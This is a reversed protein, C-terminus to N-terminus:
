LTGAARDPHRPGASRNVARFWTLRGNRWTREVDFWRELYALLEEDGPKRHLEGVIVGTGRLVGPPFSTLIEHEAGETDIKILDIAPLKLRTLVEPVAVVPLTPTDPPPTRGPRLFGGGGFNRPDDSRVYPRDETRPGLGFPLATIQPFAAVNSRLLEFNDPLPEFAVIEARPYRRSLGISVAGINAGIDLIVRPEFGAPPEYERPLGGGALIRVLKADSTGTRFRLRGPLGPLRIEALGVRRTHLLLGARLSRTQVATRLFEQAALLAPM